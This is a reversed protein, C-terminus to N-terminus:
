PTKTFTVVRAVDDAHEGEDTGYIEVDVLELDSITGSAAEAGFRDAFGLGEYVRSNVGLSFRCGPAAIRLLEDLAAPGVHGHTFTGASVMGAYRGSEIELADTLDGEIVARYVADGADTRKTAAVDLMEPSIDIGDIVEVGLERLAEGVLGTGCGVDLVPGADPDAGDVFARAVGRHYVYQNASIFGSEYTEAWKAYLARADDPTELAYADELGPDFIEEDGM